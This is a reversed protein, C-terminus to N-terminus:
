IPRCSDIASSDLVARIDGGPQQGNARRGPRLDLGLRGAFAMAEAAAAVNVVALLNAVYKMRMGQGLPGLYSCNPSITTLIGAMREYVPRSGSVFVVATRATVM